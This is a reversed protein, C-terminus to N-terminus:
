RAACELREVRFAVGVMFSWSVASATITCGSPGTRALTIQSCPSPASPWSKTGITRSSPSLGSAPTRKTNGCALTCGTVSLPPMGIRAQYSM